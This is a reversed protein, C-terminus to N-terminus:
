PTIPQSANANPQRIFVYREKADDLQKAARAFDAQAKDAMDAGYRRLTSALDEPKRGELAAITICTGMATKFLTSIHQERHVEKMPNPDMGSRMEILDDNIEACAIDWIPHNTWRARNTDNPDPETYRIQEGLSRCLDGFQDFLQEWTRIGWRDKLCTKGARFEIRWVRNRDAQIKDPSLSVDRLTDTGFLAVLKRRLTDNRSSDEIYKRLTDNWVSWLFAKGHVITEARKDYIIVQKNGIKGATVSSHRGSTGHSVLSEPELQDRRKTSSHMVLQAPNLAFSPALVDVCFDVRAISVDEPGYRIGLRDLVTEVHAKAAGLGFNTMFFSGFSVRVGWKDRNNPKKFAWAGGEQGGDCLFAYGKGGYPKLLLQVSNFDTLVERNEEEAVAKRETLYDFLEPGIQAQVSLALTDFGRHLVLYPEREETNGSHPTVIVGSKAVHGTAKQASRASKTGGAPYSKNQPRATRGASFDSTQM